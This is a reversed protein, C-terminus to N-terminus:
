KNLKQIGHMLPELEAILAALLKEICDSEDNNDIAAELDAAAKQIGKAGIMGVIGKFSHVMRSATDPDSDLQAERFLAEFNQYKKYFRFLLRRYRRHSNQMARLGYDINIGTLEHREEVNYSEEPLEEPIRDSANQGPHTHVSNPPSKAPLTEPIHDSANQCPHIWKALTKLMDNVKFPKPIHDNMGAELVKERDELMANATMAIVPLNKFRAQERIKRCATYGDMVPMQCDLLVGDFTEKDLWALAQKGNEASEIIVGNDTLLEQIFELNIENDEVLLLRAGRLHTIAENSTENHISFDHSKKEKSQHRLLNVTFYFTAGKGLDSEVWIKGSM